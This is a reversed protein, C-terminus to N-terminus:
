VKEDVPRKRLTADLAKALAEPFAEDVEDSGHFIAALDMITQEFGASDDEDNGATQSVFIGSLPDEGETHGVEESVGQQTDIVYDDDPVYDQSQGGDDQGAFKRDVEAMLKSSFEKLMEYMEGRTCAENNEVGAQKERDIVIDSECQSSGDHTRLRKNVDAPREDLRRRGSTSPVIDKDMEMLKEIVGFGEFDM